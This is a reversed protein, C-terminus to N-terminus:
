RDINVDTKIDIHRDTLGTKPHKRTKPTKLKAYKMGMFFKWCIFLHNKRESEAERETETYNQWETMRDRQRERDGITERDKNRRTERLKESSVLLCM